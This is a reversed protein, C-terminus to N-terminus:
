NIKHWNTGDSQLWLVTGTAITTLPTILDADFYAPTTLINGTLNKIIIVRGQTNDAFSVSTTANDSLIVTYDTDAIAVTAGLKGTDIPLITKNSDVYGKTAADNPDAPAGLNTIRLTGADTGRTLVEQLNQLENTTDSDADDKSINDVYDKTAADNAATPAGLNTIKLTGADTGRTLVEQLNQLENTIDSDADDKSINDVYARTAADQQDVPDGLNTIRSGAASASIPDGNLTLVAALDQLEDTSDVDDNDIHVQLDTILDNIATENNTIDTLFQNSLFAGEGNPNTIINTPDTTDTVDTIRIFGADNNFTSLTVLNLDIKTPTVSEDGLVRNNIAGSALNAENITRFQINTFGNIERVEFNLANGVPTISITPIDNEIAEATLNNNIENQLEVTLVEGNSKTLNLNGTTEDIALSEVGTGDFTIPGSGNSFTYTGDGNDVFSVNFAQCLNVWQTGDYQFICNEDTNYALAGQLPTIATMQAQSLRTLVFVRSNSELELLSSSNLAQPNEGIKVQGFALGTGLSIFALLSFFRKM